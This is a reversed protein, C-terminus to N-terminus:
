CRSVTADGPGTGRPVQGPLFGVDGGTGGGLPHDRGLSPTPRPPGLRALARLLLRLDPLPFLPFLAQVLLGLMRLPTPPRAARRPSVGQPPAARERLAPPGARPRGSFALGYKYRLSLSFVCYQAEISMGRAGFCSIPVWALRRRFAGSRWCLRVCAISTTLTPLVAVCPASAAHSPALAPPSRLSAWHGVRLELRCFECAFIALEAAPAPESWSLFAAPDQVRRFGDTYPPCRPLVSTALLRGWHLALIAVPVLLVCLASDACAKEMTARVLASPPHLFLVRAELHALCCIPCVSRAWDPVCLADIDESGQEHFQGWFRPAWVNSESALADVTVGGM